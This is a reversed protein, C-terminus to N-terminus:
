PGEAGGPSHLAAAARVREGERATRLSPKRLKCEGKRLYAKSARVNRQTYREAGTQWLGKDRTKGKDSCRQMTGTEAKYDWLPPLAM